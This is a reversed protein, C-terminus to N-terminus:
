PPTPTATPTATPTPTPTPPPTFTPTPTNTPPPSPTPTTTPTPTPSATPSPTPTATPPLTTLTHQLANDEPHPDSELASAETQLLATAVEDVVQVQVHVIVVEEPRLMPWHCVLQREAEQWACDEAAGDGSVSLWALAPPLTHTLSVEHATSPGHNTLILSYQFVEGLPANSPLGEVQPHLDALPVLNITHSAVNNEALPDAEAAAVSAELALPDEAALDIQGTLTIEAAAGVALHEWQCTLIGEQAECSGDQSAAIATPRWQAPLAHQWVVASAPGPGLNHVAAQYTVTAGPAAQAPAQWATALDAGDFVILMGTAQNDAPTPDVFRGEVTFKLPYTGEEQPATLALSVTTTAQPPLDALDCVVNQGEPTCPGAPPNDQWGVHPPLSATLTVHEATQPGDNTVHLTYTAEGTPLVTVSNTQLQLNLDAVWAIPVEASVLNNEPQPDAESAAVQAQIQGGLSTTPAASASPPLPQMTLTLTADESVPLAPWHCTLGEAAPACSGQGPNASLIQFGRAHYTLTIDTALSPGLNSITLTLTIPDGLIAKAPAEQRVELDAQRQLTTQSLLLNNEPQPDPQLATIEARNNLTGELATAPLVTLSFALDANHLLDGLACTLIREDLTCADQPLGEIALLVAGDPLTDTFTVEWADQPGHNVATFTYTLPLGAVPALPTATQTIELDARSQAILLDRANDAPLFGDATESLSDASHPHCTTCDQGTFDINGPHNAGGTHKLTGTAAHCAVCLRTNPPSTGDDFSHAGSFAQFQIPGVHANRNGRGPFLMTRISMANTAGHPDHCDTCHLQFPPQSPNAADLNGHTSIPTTSSAGTGNHCTFCFRDVDSARASTTTHNPSAVKGASIAGTTTTTSPAILFPNRGTHARHCTACADTTAPYPGRHPGQSPPAAQSPTTLRAALGLGILLAWFAWCLGQVLRKKSTARISVTM